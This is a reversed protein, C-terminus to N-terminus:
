SVGNGATATLYESRLKQKLMKGSPDRPLDSRFEVTRPCKVDALRSKCFDILDRALVDSDEG